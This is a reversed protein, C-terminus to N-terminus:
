VRERGREERWGNVCEYLLSFMVCGQRVGCDIGLIESAGEKASVCALRNDYMSRVGNFLKCGM